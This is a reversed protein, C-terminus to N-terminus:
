KENLSSKMYGLNSIQKKKNIKEKPHFLPPPHLAYIKKNYTKLNYM